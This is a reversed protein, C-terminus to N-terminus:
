IRQRICSAVEFKAVGGVSARLLTNGFTLAATKTVNIDISNFNAGSNNWTQTISLGPASATLVGNSVTLAGQTGDVTGPLASLPQAAGRQINGGRDIEFKKGTITGGGTISPTSFLSIHGHDTAKFGATLWTHNGNITIGADLLIQGSEYAFAIGGASVGGTDIEIGSTTGDQIRGGSYAHLLYAWSAGQSRGILLRGGYGGMAPRGLVMTGLSVLVMTVTSQVKMDSIFFIAGKGVGFAEWSTGNLIVNEPNTDNGHLWVHGGTIHHHLDGNITFGPYTGDALKVEATFGSLDVNMSIFTFAYEPTAWPSGSSGDGTTDNGTTSVYYTRAFTPQTSIAM